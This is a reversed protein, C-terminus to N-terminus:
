VVATSEALVIAATLVDMPGASEDTWADPGTEVAPAELLVSSEESLATHTEVM